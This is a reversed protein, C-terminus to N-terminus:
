ETELRRFWIWGEIEVAKRQEAGPAISRGALFDAGALVCLAADLCDDSATLQEAPVEIRAESALRGAIRLRAALAGDKTGKYGGADIRRAILTAAPYVEIAGISDFTPTWLLPVEAGLRTRLDGLLRLAAEATRAIRDAGVELPLKGLTAHVFRDTNRRFLHNPEAQMPQGARHSSLSRGLADPWGLPADLALLTPGQVWSALTELPSDVDAGRTVADITLTSGRLRGRSLGLKRPQTAVDIGLITIRDIM